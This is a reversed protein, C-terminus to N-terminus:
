IGALFGPSSRDGSPIEARDEATALQRPAHGQVGDAFGRWRDSTGCVM